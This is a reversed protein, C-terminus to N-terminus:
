HKGSNTAIIQQCSPVFSDHDAANLYAQFELVIGCNKSAEAKKNQELALRSLTWSQYVIARGYTQRPGPNGSGARKFNKQYIAVSRVAHDRALDFRKEEAYLDALSALTAAIEPADKEGTPSLALAKKYYQESEDYKQLALHLNGMSMMWEWREPVHHRGDSVPALLGSARNLLQGAAAYDRKALMAVAADEATWFDFQFLMEAREQTEQKGTSHFSVVVVTVVATPKGELEFPKYKWSNVADVAPIQFLPHGSIIRRVAPKGSEDIAVELLVDGTIHTLDALPPYVPDSKIVLHEGAADAPIRTPRTQGFLSISAALFLVVCSTSYLICQWSKSPSSVLIMALM